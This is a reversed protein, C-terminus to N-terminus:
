GGNGGKTSAGFAWSAWGGSLVFLATLIDHLGYSTKEEVHALAIAAALGVISLLLCFGYVAKWRENM